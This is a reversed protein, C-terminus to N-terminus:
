DVQLARSVDLRVIRLAPAVFAAACVALLLLLVGAWVAADAALVGAAVRAAVRHVVLALVAGSGLGGAVLWGGTALVHWVLAGARAGLASRIAMEGTRRVVLFAIVGYLGIVGLLAAVIGSAGAVTAALRFPLVTVDATERLTETKLFFLDPETRRLERRMDAALTAADGSTRALVAASSLPRQSAALHLYPTPAETPFRVKYDSAVGVVEIETGDWGTLRFRHGLATGEPWYRVAMAESVVAVRPSAPTDATNFTRGRLLPVGLTRFYDPSVFVTVITAGRDAPDHHGPVLVTRPSFSTDLPARSTLAAAEVGPMSRVRDLADRLFRDAREADYGIMFLDTGVAAVRDPDFGLAAGSTSGVAGRVSLGAFVLLPVTIALQGAVLADRLFWRRGGGRAVPVTGNLDRLLSPRTAQLAPVLAALLGAGTAAAATFLFARGDLPFDLAVSVIAIPSEVTALVRLLSWAIALGGAAGLSALLLGETALQQVLRRRSAGIALRVAIERRRAVSRALLMGVVNACAVLLVIGVALMLSAAAVNVPGGVQPPLRVDNTLTLSPRQNENSQPYAAELDAMVVGLNAAAQTLTVGDRLRGKVFMWRYGRRELPTEGPSPVFTSIGMPALDAIWTMPIWLDPGPIPPMGYFEPPAVGVIVYPLARVHLTRGVVEPDRGFAREWLGTSIVAVRPASPRADEPALLRGRVPRLGLLEFYNGTVTEGFVLSTAEDVRTVAAMPAHAAMDTFVDNEASLDLYDPYSTTAYPDGPLGTWVDVLQAPRAVPLPRFLVADIVTFITTNFGIPIALSVVAALTFVPSRRAARFAYGLDRILDEIPRAGRADRVAERIAETGGLRVHAQRHAERPPLGARRNKEAEMELHFRLEAETEADERRRRLLPRLRAALGRLPRM